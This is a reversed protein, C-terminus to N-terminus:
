VDPTPTNSVFCKRTHYHSANQYVTRWPARSIHIQYSYHLSSSLLFIHANLWAIASSFITTDFLTEFQDFSCVLYFKKLQSRRTCLYWCFMLVIKALVLFTFLVCSFVRLITNHIRGVASFFFCFLLLIIEFCRFSHVQSMSKAWQSRVAAHSLEIIRGIKKLHIFVM